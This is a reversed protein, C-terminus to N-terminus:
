VEGALLALIELPTDGGPELFCYEAGLEAAPSNEDTEWYYGDRVPKSKYAWAKGDMDRTIWSYGMAYLHRLEDAEDDTLDVYSEASRDDSLLGADTLAKAVEGESASTTIVTGSHLHFTVFMKSDFEIAAIEDPDLFVMGLKILM